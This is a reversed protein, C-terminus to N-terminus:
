SQRTGVIVLVIAVLAGRVIAHLNRSMTMRRSTLPYRWCRVRADHGLHTGRHDRARGQAHLPSGCAESADHVERWAEDLVPSWPTRSSSVVEQTRTRETQPRVM